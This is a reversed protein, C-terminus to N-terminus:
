VAEQEAPPQPVIGAAHPDSNEVSELAERLKEAFSARYREIERLGVGRRTETNAIMAEIREIEDIEERLTAAMVADMSMGASKLAADVTRV